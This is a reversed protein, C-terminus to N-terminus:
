VVSLDRDMTFYYGYMPTGEYVLIQGWLNIWHFEMTYRHGGNTPDYYRFIADPGGSYFAPEGNFDSYWGYQTCLVHVENQDSTFHHIGVAPNYLRYVPTGTKPAVWVPGSCSYVPNAALATYEDANATYIFDNNTTNIFLTVTPGALVSSGSIALFLLVPFLVTILKKM